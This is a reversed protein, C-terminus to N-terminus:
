CLMCLRLVLLLIHYNQDQVKYIMLWGLLFIAWLLQLYEQHHKEFLDTAGRSSGINIGFIDGQNWGANQVAKRAAAMAYLVSKDLSKYKIDSQQLDDVILKSSEDLSAVLTQKKDLEQSKFCHKGSLYNEWITEPTNGLPSISAIATISITQSLIRKKLRL